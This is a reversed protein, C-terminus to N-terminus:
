EANICKTIKNSHDNLRWYGPKVNLTSGGPCTAVLPDCKMCETIPNLINPEM